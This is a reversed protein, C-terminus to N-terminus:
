NIWVKVKGSDNVGVTYINAHFLGFHKYLLPLVEIIHELILFAEQKSFPPLESLRTIHETFVRHKQSSGIM